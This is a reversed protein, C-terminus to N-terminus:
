LPPLNFTHLHTWSNSQFSHTLCSTRQSCVASLDDPSSLSASQDVWFVILMFGQFDVPSVQPDQGEDFSGALHPLSELLFIHWWGYLMFLIILASWLTWLMQWGRSYFAEVKFLTLFASCSWVLCILWCSSSWLLVLFSVQVDSKVTQLFIGM